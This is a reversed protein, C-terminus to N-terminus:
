ILNQKLLEESIQLKWGINKIDISKKCFECRLDDLTQKTIKKECWFCKVEDM